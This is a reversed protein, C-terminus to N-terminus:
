RGTQGLHTHTEDNGLWAAREAAPRLKEHPIMKIITSLHNDVIRGWDDAALKQEADYKVEAFRRRIDRTVCDKLLYELAKRYGM